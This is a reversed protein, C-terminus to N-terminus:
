VPSGEPHPSSQGDSAHKFNSKPKDSQVEPSGSKASLDALAGVEGCVSQTPNLDFGLDVFSVVIDWLTQLFERKQADTLDSDELYRGYREWDITLTPSAKAQQPPKTDPESM